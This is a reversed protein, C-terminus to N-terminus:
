APTPQGLRQCRELYWARLFGGDWTDSQGPRLPWLREEAFARAVIQNRGSPEWYPGLEVGKRRFADAIILHAVRPAGVSDDEVYSTSRPADVYIDAWEPLEMSRLDAGREVTAPQWDGNPLRLVTYHVDDYAAAPGDGAAWQRLAGLAWGEFDRVRQEGTTSPLSRDLALVALDARMERIAAEIAAGRALIDAHPLGAIALIGRMVGFAATWKPFNLPISGALKLLEGRTVLTFRDTNGSRHPFVVGALNFLELAAATNAKGYASERALELVSPSHGYDSLLNRFIEARVSVGFIARLKLQILAPRRLDPVSSRGRLEVALPKGSGPWNVKRHLRVTAAYTDFRSLVETSAGRLLNRLRVGSIFRSNTICWDLSEDRLRADLDMLSSTAIILAEADLATAYHHRAWGSVGLEAWQSWLTELILERM